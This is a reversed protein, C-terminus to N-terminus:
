RIRQGSMAMVPMTFVGGPTAERARHRTAEDVVLRRHKEKAREIEPARMCALFSLTATWGPSGPPGLAVWYNRLWEGLLPRSSKVSFERGEGGRTSAGDLQM